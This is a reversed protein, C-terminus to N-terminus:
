HPVYSLYNDLELFIEDPAEAAGRRSESPM